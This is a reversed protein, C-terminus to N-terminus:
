AGSSRRHPRSRPGQTTCEPAHAVKGQQPHQGTPRRREAGRMPLGEQFTSRAAKVDALLADALLAGSEGGARRLLTLVENLFADDQRLVAGCRAASPSDGSRLGLMARLLDVVEAHCSPGAALLLGRVLAQCQRLDPSLQRRVMSRYTEIAKPYDRLSVCAQLLANQLAASPKMRWKACTGEVVEFARDLVKAHAYLKVMSTLTGPSPALGAEEQMERFLREGEEVLGAQACGDLITNFVVDDARISRAQKLENFIVLANTMDGQQVFGKIMTSYTILTPELRRTKMEAMLEHAKGMQGNRTCADIVANYTTQLPAIGQQLMEDFIALVRDLQGQRGYGKLVSGYVIANVQDRCAADGLLESILEYGGDVDGNSVLAEVMCGITISTPLVHQSRLEKWCRWVGALDKAFGYAKILSGFSHANTLKLGKAQRVGDLRQTLLSVRGVRVCAEVVSSLLLEDMPEAMADILDLTRLVDAQSSRSNLNKLLISCTIRNPRVGDKKMEDVVDWVGSHRHEKDSKALHNVFENYTVQNPGLGAQRMECATARASDLRGARLMGKIITNYSVADAFQETEMRKLFAEARALNGCEVCSDLATNWMSQSLEIGAAELEKFLSMASDLNGRTACGRLLAVFKKSDLQSHKLLKAVLAERSCQLAAHILCRETNQSLLLRQSDVNQRAATKDYLECAQAYLGADAYFQVFTPFAQLQLGERGPCSVHSWLKDAADVDKAQSCQALIIDVIEKSCTKAGGQVDQLLEKMAEADSRTAKSVLPPTRVDREARGGVGLRALRLLLQKNGPKSAEYLLANQSETTLVLGGKEMEDILLCIKKERCALDVLQAALHLPATSATPQPLGGATATRFLRHYRLADELQGLQLATKMLPVNSRATPVIGKSQMEKVVREVDKFSRISFYMHLLAEYTGANAALGLAPLSAVIGAVVEVDLSKAVMQLVRNVYCIDCHAAANRKLYGRVEVIISSADKQFRQMAEVVRALHHASVVDTKRLTSWCRLVAKHDGREHALEAEQLVAEGSECKASFNTARAADDGASSDSSVSAKRHAADKQKPSSDKFKKQRPQWVASAFLLRHLFFAFLFLALEVKVMLIADVVREAVNSLM